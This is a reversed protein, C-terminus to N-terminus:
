EFEQLNQDLKQLIRDLRDLLEQNTFVYDRSLHWKTALVNEFGPTGIVGGFHDEGLPPKFPETDEPHLGRALAVHDLNQNVYPIFVNSEFNLLQAYQFPARGQSLAYYFDIDAKLQENQLTDIKGSSILLDYTRRTINPTGTRQVDGLLVYFADHTMGQQRPDEDLILRSAAAASRTHIEIVRVLQDRSAEFDQRLAVLHSREESQLRRAEYVREVQFALFVGVIVVIFELGLAVWDQNEISLKIRRLFM